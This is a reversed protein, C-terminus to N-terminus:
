FSQGQCYSHVCCSSVLTGSFLSKMAESVFFLLALVLSLYVRCPGTKLLKKFIETKVVASYAPSWVNLDHGESCYKLNLDSMQSSCTLFFKVPSRQSIPRLNKLSRFHTTFNRKNLYYGTM